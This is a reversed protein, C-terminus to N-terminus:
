RREPQYANNMRIIVDRTRDIRESAFAIRRQAIQQRVQTALPPAEPSPNTEIPRIGDHILVLDIGDATAMDAVAAMIDRYLKELQLARDVDLEQKMLEQWAMFQVVEGDVREEVTLREIPDTIAALEVQFGRVAEQRSEAEAAVQGAKARLSAEADAREVLGELVGSLNVVAVPSSAGRQAAEGPMLGIAFLGIGALCLAPVSMRSHSAM